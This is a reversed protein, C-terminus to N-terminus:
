PDRDHWFWLFRTLAAHLSCFLLFLLFVPRSGDFCALIAFLQSSTIMLAIVVTSGLLRLSMVVAVIVPNLQGSSSPLSRFPLYSTLLSFDSKASVAAAVLRM